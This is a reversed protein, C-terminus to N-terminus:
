PAIPFHIYSGSGSVFDFIKLLYGLVKNSRLLSFCFYCMESIKALMIHSMNPFAIHRHPFLFGKEKLRNEIYQSSEFSSWVTDNISSLLLVAGNIKEVPIISERM